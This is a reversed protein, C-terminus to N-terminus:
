RGLIPKLTSWVLAPPLTQYCAPRVPSAGSYNCTRRLCPACEFRARLPIQNRGLTGTLGPETAGYLTVAPVGLAAAVHALGTDVAVVGRAAALVGALEALSMRPLVQARPCTGVIREARAKEAPNGWPLRIEYGHAAALGALATWSEEPWHKTAWTTGHLFVITQEVTPGALFRSRDIGYDPESVPCPYGLSRAFLQRVRTIAHQGKAIPHQHHAALCSFPERASSWSLAHRPGRTGLAVWASKLLGQADIVADYERARLRQNFQSRQDREDSRWWGRRWRRLAVPLIQRVTPHWAPIEAIGEEVVWDFTIGPLAAAADTLAPLTHVVDGLSSTKIILVHKV